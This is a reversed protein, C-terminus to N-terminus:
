TSCPLVASLGTTGRLKGVLRTALEVDPERALQRRSVCSRRSHTALRSPHRRKPGQPEPTVTPSVM